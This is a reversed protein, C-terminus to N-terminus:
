NFTSLIDKKTLFSPMNDRHHLQARIYGERAEQGAVSGASHTVMKVIRETAQTNTSFKPPEYPIHRFGEIQTCSLSCTFVPEAVQGPKWTILKRLTTASLNIKPTIRARLSTDGFENKGRLKLIQDVAFGRDEPDSSALLSVLICEPHAYWAGTRVYHYCRQCM